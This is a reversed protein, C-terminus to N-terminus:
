KFPVSYYKSLAKQQTYLHDRIKLIDTLQYPQSFISGVFIYPTNKEPSFICDIRLFFFKQNAFGYCTRKLTKI